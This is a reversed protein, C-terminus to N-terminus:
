VASYDRIIQLLLLYLCASLFRNCAQLQTASYSVICNLALIYM